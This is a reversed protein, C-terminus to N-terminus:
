HYGNKFKAYAGIRRREEYEEVSIEKASMVVRSHKVSPMRKAINCASLIDNAVIAFHIDTSHGNGCHGRHCSVLYYRM